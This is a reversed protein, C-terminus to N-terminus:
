QWNRQKLATGAGKIGRYWEQLDTLVRLVAFVAILAYGALIVQLLTKRDIQNTQTKM